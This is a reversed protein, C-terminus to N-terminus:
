VSSGVSGPLGIDSLDPKYNVTSFLTHVNACFAETGAFQFLGYSRNIPLLLFSPFPKGPKKCEATIKWSLFHPKLWM